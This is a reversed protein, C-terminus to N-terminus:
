PQIPKSSEVWDFNGVRKTLMVDAPGDAQRSKANEGEFHSGSLFTHPFGHDFPYAQEIEEMEQQTLAIGLAEINSM